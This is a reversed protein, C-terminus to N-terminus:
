AANFPATSCTLCSDMAVLWGFKKSNTKFCFEIVFNSMLLVTSTLALRKNHDATVPCKSVKLSPTGAKGVRPDLELRM